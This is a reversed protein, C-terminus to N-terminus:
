EYLNLRFNFKISPHNNNICYTLFLEIESPIGEPMVLINKIKNFKFKKKNTKIKKVNKLSGANYINLKNKLKKKLIAENYKSTTFIKDPELEKKMNAFFFKQKKKIVSFQFGSIQIKYNKKRIKSIILKEYENGEFTLLLNQIKYKSIIKLVQYCIRRHDISNICERFNEKKKFLFLFM